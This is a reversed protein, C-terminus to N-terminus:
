PNAANNAGLTQDFWNQTQPTNVSAAEPTLADNPAPTEQRAELMMTESSPAPIAGPQPASSVGGDLGGATAPLMTGVAPVGSAADPLAGADLGVSKLYNIQSQIWEPIPKGRNAPDAQWM